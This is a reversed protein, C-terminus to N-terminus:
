KPYQLILFHYPSIARYKGYSYARLFIVRLFLIPQRAAVLQGLRRFHLEQAIFKLAFSIVCTTAFAIMSDLVQWDVTVSFYWPDIVSLLLPDRRSALHYAQEELCAHVEFDMHHTLVPSGM